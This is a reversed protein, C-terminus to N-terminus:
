WRSWTTRKKTQINLVFCWYFKHENLSFLYREDSKREWELMWGLKMQLWNACDKLKYIRRWYMCTIANLLFLSHEFVDVVYIDNPSEHNIDGYYCLTTSLLIVAECNCCFLLFTMENPYHLLLLTNYIGISISTTMFLKEEKCRLYNFRIQIGNEWNNMWFCSFFRTSSPWIKFKGDLHKTKLKM